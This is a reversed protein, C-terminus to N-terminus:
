ARGARCRHSRRATGGTGICRRVPKGTYYGCLSPRRLGCETRDYRLDGTFPQGVVVQGALVARRRWELRRCPRPFRFTQSEKQSRAQASEACRTGSIGERTAADRFPSHIVSSGGCEHLRRVRPETEVEYVGAYASHSPLNLMSLAMTM